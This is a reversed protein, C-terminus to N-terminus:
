AFAAYFVEERPAEDWQLLAVAEAVSCSVAGNQLDVVVFETSSSSSSSSGSGGDGAGGGGGGGGGGGPAPAVLWCLWVGFPQAEPPGQRFVCLCGGGRGGAAGRAEEAVRGLSSRALTRVAYAAQGRRLARPRAPVNGEFVEGSWVEWARALGFKACFYAQWDSGHAPDLARAVLAGAGGRLEEAIGEQHAVQAVECSFLEGSADCREFNLQCSLYLPPFAAGFRRADGDVLLAVPALVNALLCTHLSPYCREAADAPQEALPLADEPPPTFALPHLWLLAAQALARLPPAAGGEYESTSPAPPAPPARGIRQRLARLAAANPALAGRATYHYGATPVTPPQEPLTPEFAWMVTAGEREEDEDEDEDGGGGPAAAAGAGGAAGEEAAENVQVHLHPGLSFGTSGSRGLEQGKAVAQGRAVRLSGPALHLYTVVFAAVDSGAAAGSGASRVKVFNCEPLLDVHAGGLVTDGRCGVVVGDAMALVPTGEACALDCAHHSAAGRHHGRGGFGQTCLFPGGEGGLPFGLALGRWAAPRAHPAGAGVIYAFGPLADAAPHECRCLRASSRPPVEATLTAFRVTAGLAAPLAPTADRPLSPRLLAGLPLPAGPPLLLRPQAASPLSAAVSAPLSSPNVCVLDLGAPAAARRGRKAGPAAPAPAEWQLTPPGPPHSAALPSPRLHSPDLSTVGEAAESGVGCGTWDEVMEGRTYPLPQHYPLPPRPPASM